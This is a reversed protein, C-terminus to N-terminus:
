EQVSTTPALHRLPNM